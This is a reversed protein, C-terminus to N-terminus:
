DTPAEFVSSGPHFAMWAFWYTEVVDISEPADVVFANRERSFTIRVDHGAFRDTIAADGSEFLRMPYARAVGGDKTRLGLTRAKPHERDDRPAPFHLRRSRAYDGYPARGYDRRHGTRKSLVLTHPHRARWTDWREHSSRLLTLREGARSGTVALGGIQTWLSETARDFMLLDSQYLLGSVGFRDDGARTSPRDFAMASGCLPCYSVLIPRGAIVDNVLEHWVLVDLPYARAETTGDPRTAVVGVVMSADPWGADAAGVMHPSDLAPIGDKPPGGRLIENRPIQADALDFGNPGALAEGALTMCAAVCLVCAAWAPFTLCFTGSPEIAVRM